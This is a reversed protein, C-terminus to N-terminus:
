RPWPPPLQGALSLIPQGLYHAMMELSWDMDRVIIEPAHGLRLRHAAHSGHFSHPSITSPLGAAALWTALRSACSSASLVPGLVPVDDSSFFLRRLLPGNSRPFGHQALAHRFFFWTQIPNYVSRDNDLVLRRTDKPARRTKSLTLRLRWATPHGDAGTVQRVDSCSLRLADSLRHGTYWMFSYLFADQLARLSEIINGDAALRLAADCVTSMLTNYINQDFLPAQHRVVKAASQEADVRRIYDTVTNSRVPNGSSTLPNWPTTLGLDTFVKSLQKCKTRLSSGSLRRSCLPNACFTRSPNDALHASCEAHHVRTIGSADRSALYRVILDPTLVRLDPPFGM